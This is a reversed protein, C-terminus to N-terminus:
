KLGVAERLHAPLDLDLDHKGHDVASIYAKAYAIYDPDGMGLASTREVKEMQRYLKGVLAHESTLTADTMHNQVDRLWNDNRYTSEHSSSTAVAAGVRQVPLLIDPPTICRLLILDWCVLYLDGDLDGSAVTAALPADTGATSFILGGFPLGILWDWTDEPMFVPRSIVVPLMRGHERLVSPSRTVFVENRDGLTAFTMISKFGTVFVHGAPLFSTPDALGILWAHDPNYKLIHNRIKDQPCGLGRLLRQFMKSLRKREFTSDPQIIGQFLKGIEKNNDSPNTRVIILSAWDEDCTVSPMVKRMSPTLQINNIGMKKCLMGKFVGLRPSFVRVQMSLLRDAAKGLLEKMKGEGIFGCGDGMAEQTVESVAENIIEFDICNLRLPLCTSASASHFLELRSALKRSSRISAFDAVRSLEESLNIEAVGPGSTLVYIFSFIEKTVGAFNKGDDTTKMGALEYRCGFQNLVATPRLATAAGAQQKLILIRDRPFLESLFTRGAELNSKEGGGEIEISVPRLGCFLHQTIESAGVQWSAPGKSKSKASSIKSKKPQLPLVIDEIESQDYDETSKDTYKVKYYLSNFNIITGTWWVSDFKKKITRGIFYKKIRKYLQAATLLENQGSEYSVTFNPASYSVARGEQAVGCVTRNIIKELYSKETWKELDSISMKKTCEDRSNPNLLLLVHPGIFKDVLAVTYGQGEEIEAHFVRGVYSKKMQQLLESKILLDTQMNEYTVLYTSEDCSEIRGIVTGTGEFHKYLPLGIFADALLDGDGDESSDDSCSSTRQMPSFRKVTPVNKRTRRSSCGLLEELTRGVENINKEENYIIRRYLPNKYRVMITEADEHFSYISGEYQVGTTTATFFVTQGIFLRHGKATPISQLTEGCGCMRSENLSDLFAVASCDPCTVCARANKERLQTAPAVPALDPLDREVTQSQVSLKPKKAAPTTISTDDEDSEILFRRTPNYPVVDDEESM